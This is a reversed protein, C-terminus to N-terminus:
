SKRGRHIAACGWLLSRYQVEQFGAARMKEALRAKDPFAWTSDRLWRYARCHKAGGGLFPMVASFYARYGWYVPGPRPRSSELIYVWGDRHTVRALEALAAQLDPTNRLGFGVTVADFAAPPFPLALVDGWIFEANGTGAGRRRAIDLMAGTLDLGVVSVDPRLAAMKLAIDGTGCCADLLTGESPLRGAADRCLLKKWRRHLGLSIRDNASDYGQAIQSFLAQM